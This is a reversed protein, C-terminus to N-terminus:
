GPPSPSGAGARRRGSRARGRARCRGAACGRWSRSPPTAPRRGYKLSRHTRPHDQKTLRNVGGAHVRGEGLPALPQVVPPRGVARVAVGGERLEERRGDHEHHVRPADTSRARRAASSSKRSGSSALRSAPVFRSRWPQGLGPDELDPPEGAFPDRHRRDGAGEHDVDAIQEFAPRAAPVAGGHMAHDVPAAPLPQREYEGAIRVELGEDFPPTSSGRRGNRAGPNAAICQADGARHVGRRCVIREVRRRIAHRCRHIHHRGHRSPVGANPAFGSM